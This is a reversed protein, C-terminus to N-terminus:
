RQALEALLRLALVDDVRQPHGAPVDRARGDEEADLPRVQVLLDARVLDLAALASATTIASGSTTPRARVSAVWRMSPLPPGRSTKTSPWSGHPTATGPKVPVAASIRGRSVAAASAPYETSAAQMAP